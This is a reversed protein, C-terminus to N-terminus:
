ESTCFHSAVVRAPEPFPSRAPDAETLTVTVEEGVPLPSQSTVNAEVAPDRLMVTGKRADDPDAETVVGSFKEGVRPQLTEAEVLNVVANEYANARRGSERMLDPLAPLGDVV